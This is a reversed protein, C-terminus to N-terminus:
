PNRPPHRVLTHLDARLEDLPPNQFMVRRQTFASLVEALLAVAVRGPHQVGRNLSAERSELDVASPGM